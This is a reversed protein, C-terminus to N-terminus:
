SGDEEALEPHLANVHVKLGKSSTASFGCKMCTNAMKSNEAEESAKHEQETVGEVKEREKGNLEVIRLPKDREIPEWRGNKMKLPRKFQGIFRNAELIPKVIYGQAPVTWLDGRFEETYDQDSRNEIKVQRQAAARVQTAPEPM